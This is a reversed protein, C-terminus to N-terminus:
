TSSEPQKNGKQRINSFILVSVFVTEHNLMKKETVSFPSLNLRFSSNNAEFDTELDFDFGLSRAFNEATGGGM